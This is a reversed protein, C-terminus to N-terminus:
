NTGGPLRRSSSTATASNIKFTFRVLCARKIYPRTIDINKNNVPQSILSCAGEKVTGSAGRGGEGREGAVMGEAARNSATSSHISCRSLTQAALFASMRKVPEVCVALKETWFWGKEQEERRGDNKGKRETDRGGQERSGDRATRVGQTDTNVKETSVGCGGGRSGNYRFIVRRYIM